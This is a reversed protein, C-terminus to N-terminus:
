GNRKGTQHARHQAERQQQSSGLGGGGLDIVYAIQDATARGVGL